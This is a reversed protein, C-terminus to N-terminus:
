FYTCHMLAARQDDAKYISCNNLLTSTFLHKLIHYWVLSYDALFVSNYRTTMVRSFRARGNHKAFWYIDLPYGSSSYGILARPFPCESTQYISICSIGLKTPNPIYQFHM